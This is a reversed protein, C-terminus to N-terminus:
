EEQPLIVTVLRITHYEVAPEIMAEQWFKEQAKDVKSVQGIILGAPIDPELGSTAVLDDVSIDIDKPL